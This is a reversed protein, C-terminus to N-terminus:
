FVAYSIAVHSSNLRTSKRDQRAPAREREHDRDAHHRAPHDQAEDRQLGKERLGRELDVVELRPEGGEPLRLLLTRDDRGPEGRLDSSRRTPFSHLHPSCSFAA